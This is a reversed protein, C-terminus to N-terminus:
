RTEKFARLEYSEELGKPVLQRNQPVNVLWSDKKLMVGSGLIRNLM